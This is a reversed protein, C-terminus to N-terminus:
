NHNISDLRRWELYELFFRLDDDVSNNLITNRAEEYIKNNKEIEIYVTDIRERLEERHEQLTDLEVELSDIKEIFESSTSSPVTPRSYLLYGLVLNIAISVSLIVRETKSM